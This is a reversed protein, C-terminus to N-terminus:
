TLEQTSCSRLQPRCADRLAIPQMGICLVRARVSAVALAVVGTAHLLPAKWAAPQQPQPQPQLAAHQAAAQQQLSHGSADDEASGAGACGSSAAAPAQLQLRRRTM